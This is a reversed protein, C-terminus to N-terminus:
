PFRVSLGLKEMLRDFRADLWGFFQLTNAISTPPNSMLTDLKLLRQFDVEVPGARPSGNGWRFEVGALHMIHIFEQALLGYAVTTPHVGDLAFLGGRIRGTRGSSFFHSTVPPTLEALVKPLRYPTWQWQTPRADEDEIYRRAALRDLMGAIDLVYWDRGAQRAAKVHAVIADNYMDIASDIARAQQATLHKDDRPDFDEDSIHPRTYYEFYRSGKAVKGGGKTVGRALPAVTVHPVTGFIVHRAKVKSVEAVVEDFEEKFHDPDWINFARKAALDKYLPLPGNGKKSWRPPGMDVITGLANNAGLCVILTEIGPGSPDTDTGQRGLEAAAQFPTLARGGADRATELVRWASRANATNFYDSGHTDIEGRCQEAHRSLADRLDWGWVALNHLIGERPLNHEWEERWFKSIRSMLTASEYGAAAAEWINDLKDGFQEELHRLLMEINFPMGGYGWYRPYRFEEWGMEWAIIAPFSIDTNYIAGSQFGHTLSDGITVLRNKPAGQRTVQVPIGLTPDEVPARAESTIVVSAPTLPDKMDDTVPKPM